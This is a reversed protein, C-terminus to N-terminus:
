LLMLKKVMTVTELMCVQKPEIYLVKWGALLALNNKEYDRKLHVGSKHGSVPLWIGGQVELAVRSAPWAIDWRFKRDPIIRYEFVPMPLGCQQYYQRVIDENYKM